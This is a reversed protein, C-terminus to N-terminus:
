WRRCAYAPPTSFTCHWASAITRRPRTLSGRERLEEEIFAWQKTTFSRGANVKGPARAVAVSSWPNGMLYNQDVLFGYLNGLITIAQRQAATSLEGEFPRWLPSWRERNRSGCWSDFFSYESLRFSHDPM